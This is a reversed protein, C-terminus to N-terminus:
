LHDALIQYLVRPNIPKSLHYNMGSELTKKREEDFADATMAIIPVTSADKRSLARIRRTSDLGNMIPMRVDMLIADYYNEPSAAFRELGEKGDKATEVVCGAKELILTAVYINIDNDEVLLIRAGQLNTMDIGTDPDKSEAEAPSVYLDITFETGKGPESQVSITGGMIDVLSKVIPLGLGTGKVTDGMKTREQSFPDYMHPIFDPSMGIGNDRIHFRIGVKDDKPPLAESTFEVTGGRPTFKAANSLLNFFIQNYRLRDVYICDVNAEMRFVFQIDRKNMLPRIVTNISTIFEEKTYVDSKLTLEGNEIKSMDLIDNILGLLFDCSIDINHLYEKITTMDNEDEALHTLGIIANMPTRIDHSMRSLFETKAQAASEAKRAIIELEENKRNIEHYLIKRRNEEVTIDCWVYIIAYSANIVLWGPNALQIWIFSATTVSFAILLVADSRPQIKKFNFIVLLLSIASYVMISGVGVPMFFIGRSYSIDKSLHFFLGTFPNSFSLLAYFVYPVILWLLDRNLHRVSYDKHILVYAYCSWVFALLPMSAIYITMAIQYLWWHTVYNQALSSLIDIVVNIISVILVFFFANDQVDNKGKRLSHEKILMIVFIALAFYDTEVHWMYKGRMNRYFGVISCIVPVREKEMM